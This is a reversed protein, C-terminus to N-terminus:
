IFSNKLCSCSWMEVVFFRSDVDIYVRFETIDVEM